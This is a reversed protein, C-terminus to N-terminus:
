VAATVMLEVFFGPRVLRSEVVARAPTHGPLVWSEWVLNMEDFYRFDSLWIITSILKSKGSGSVALLEDIRDLIERTQIAASQGESERAVQGCLHVVGAHVVAQSSRPGIEFRQLPM